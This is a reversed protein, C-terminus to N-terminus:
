EAGGFTGGYSVGFSGDPGVGVRIKGPKKIISDGQTRFYIYFGTSVAGLIASGLTLYSYTSYEEKRSDFAPDTARLPVAVAPLWPDPGSSFPLVSSDSRWLKCAM